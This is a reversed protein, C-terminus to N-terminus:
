KNSKKPEITEPTIKVTQRQKDRIIILSIEGEKKENIIKVLDIQNTVPKGEAEVIVDGARLNARSAPSNEVVTEILIGKGNTVGFYESLQKTL